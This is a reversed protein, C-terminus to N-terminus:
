RMCVFICHSGVTTESPESNYCCTQESHAPSFQHFYHTLLPNERKTYPLQFLAATSGDTVSSPFACSVYFLLLLLLTSFALDTSLTLCSGCPSGEIELQAIVVFSNPVNTCCYGEWFRGKATKQLQPDTHTGVLFQQVDARYLYTACTQFAFVLM